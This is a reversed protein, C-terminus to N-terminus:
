NSGHWGTIMSKFNSLPKTGITCFYIHIVMFISLIFGSIIHILDTLHIGSIGSIDPVIFEPYLLGLGTIILVPMGVYMVLLYSFKQMPNFKRKKSVPYPAPENKFIGITYFLFQKKLRNYFGKRKFRYYKRNFSFRNVVIFFLYSITVIVGSINHFSVAWDFRIMPYDPSSYQMSLGTVILVLFMLANTWHWIRIWIPYLYIRDKM